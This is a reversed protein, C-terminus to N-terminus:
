KNDEMEKRRRRKNVFQLIIGSIFVGIVGGRYYDFWTPDPTILYSITISIGTVILIFFLSIM